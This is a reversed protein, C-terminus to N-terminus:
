DIRKEIIEMCKKVGAEYGRVYDHDHWSGGEIQIESLLKLIRKKDM